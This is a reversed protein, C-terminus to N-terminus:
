VIVLACRTNMLIDKAVDEMLWASWPINQLATHAGIVVLGYNGSTIEALTEDLVLGHRIVPSSRVGMTELFKMSEILIQGETTNHEIAEFATMKLPRTYAKDTLAVQSMVHLIVVEAGVAQALKGAMEITAQRQPSLSVGVLIRKIPPPQERIVMVSCPRDHALRAAVSGLLLSTIGHRGRSGYVAMDVQETQAELEIAETVEEERIIQKTVLGNLLKKVEAMSTKVEDANENSLIGLLIAEDKGRRLFKSAFEAARQSRETGDTSILWRM